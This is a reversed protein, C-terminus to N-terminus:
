DDGEKRELFSAAIPAVKESFYNDGEHLALVAQRLDGRVDDKLVYGAAGVELARQVYIPQDYTSLMVVRTLQCLETIHQTAEIGDMLPMSIDVVAVDPCLKRAEEIAEVGNLATGVVQIEETTEFLDLLSKQVPPSDDVVLVTVM